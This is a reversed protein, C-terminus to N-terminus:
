ASARARGSRRSSGARADGRGRRASPACAHGVAGRQQLRMPGPAAGGQWWGPGAPARQVPQPHSNGVPQIRTLEIGVDGFAEVPCARARADPRPTRVPGRRRRGPEVVHAEVRESCRGTPRDGASRPGPPATGAQRARSIAPAPADGPRAVRRRLAVPRMSRPRSGSTRRRARRDPAPASRGSTPRVTASGAVRLSIRLQERHERERREPIGRAERDDRQGGPDAGACGAPPPTASRAAM